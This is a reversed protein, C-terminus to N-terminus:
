EGLRGLRGLALGVLYGGRHDEPFLRLIRRGLWLLRRNWGEELCWGAHMILSHLDDVRHDALVMCNEMRLYVMRKLAEPAPLGFDNVVGVGDLFWYDEGQVKIQIQEM